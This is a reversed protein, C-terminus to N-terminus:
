KARGYDWKLYMLVVGLALMAINALMIPASSDLVGYVVWLAIGSFFGAMWKWSIDNASRNSHVKLIQPVFAVVTLAGAAIGIIGIDM